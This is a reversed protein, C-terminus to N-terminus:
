GRRSGRQQEPTELPLEVVELEGDVFLTGVLEDGGSVKTGWLDWHTYTFWSRDAAWLNSPGGVQGDDYLALVEPLTGRYVLLGDQRDDVRGSPLRAVFAYCESDADSSETLHACLRELQERDLTGEAPPRINSPWSRYPFSRHCPLPWAAFPDVGLRATLEAWALRRWGRGPSSSQGLPAGTVRTFDDLNVNGIQVPKIVGAALEIRHEDDHTLSEPLEDCEYMAHLIWASASWGAANFGVWEDGDKSAARVWSLAESADVRKVSLM